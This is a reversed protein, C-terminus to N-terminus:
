TGVNVIFGATILLPNIILRLWSCRRLCRSGELHLRQHPLVQRYVNRSNDKVIVIHAESGVTTCMQFMQQVMQQIMQQGPSICSPQKWGVQAWRWRGSSPTHVLFCADLMLMVDYKPAINGFRAISGRSALSDEDWGDCDPAFHSCPWDDTTCLLHNATVPCRQPILINM